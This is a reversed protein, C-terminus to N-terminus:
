DRGLVELACARALELVDWHLLFFGALGLEDILKLEEELRAEAERRLAHGSPYREEFARRCVHALQVIAPEPRDSFDPYRYGLEETM